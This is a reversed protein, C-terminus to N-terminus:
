KKGKKKGMITTKSKKSTEASKRLNKLGATNKDPSKKNGVEKKFIVNKPNPIVIEPSPAVFIDKEDGIKEDSKSNIKDCTKLEFKLLLFTMITKVFLNKHIVKGHNRSELLHYIFLVMLCPSFMYRDISLVNFITSFRKSFKELGILPGIVAFIITANTDTDGGLNCVEDAMADLPYKLDQYNEFYYLYYITLRFAHRYYGMQNYVNFYSLVDPKKELKKYDDLDDKIFKIIEKEDTGNQFFSSDILIQIIDIIEKSTLGHIAAFGMISFIGTAAITESHPHTIKSNKEAEIKILEYLKILKNQKEQRDYKNNFADEIKVKFRIYGWVLFPSIRMLFGNALSEKNVVSTSDIGVKYHDNKKPDMLNYDEFRFSDLAARTANGIDNPGSLFWAGFYYMLYIENITDYEPNDMLGYGLAMAMESDDTVQGVCSGFQPTGKFVLDKNRSSPKLFECYAGIADGLFAGFICSLCQYFEKNKEKTISCVYKWLYYVNKKMKELSMEKTSYIQHKYYLNSLAKDISGFCQDMFENYSARDKEFFECLEEVKKKLENEDIKNEM